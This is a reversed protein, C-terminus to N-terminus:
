PHRQLGTGHAGRGGAQEAHPPDNEPGIIGLATPHFVPRPHEVRRARQVSRLNDTTHPFRLRRCQQAHKELPEALSSPTGGAAPPQGAARRATPKDRRFDAGM